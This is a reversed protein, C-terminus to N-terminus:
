SKIAAKILYMHSVPFGQQCCTLPQLSIKWLESDCCSETGFYFANEPFKIGPAMHLLTPGVWRLKSMLRQTLTSSFLCKWKGLCGGSGWLLFIGTRSWKGCFFWGLHTPWLVYQPRKCFFILTPTSPFIFMERVYFAFCMLILQHYKWSYNPSNEVKQGQITKGPSPLVSQFSATDQNTDNKIGVYIPQVNKRKRSSPDNWLSVNPMWWM